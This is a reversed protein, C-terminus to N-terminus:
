SAYGGASGEDLPESRRPVSQSAGMPSAAGAGRPKRRVRHNEYDIRLVVGLAMCTVLMSSGGYSMLPLTLGKTPLLGMNVGLNIFVQLAIWSGIGWCAYANFMRGLGEAAVAVAFIRWILLAYLGMVLVSGVLGTEEALVAFLFDTHAEPLYFLKQVSEGLGVGFWEGRGIAILAQTLQFGSDFPDAWPDMFGMIRRLRYPEAIALASMAAACVSFLIGFQWLKVGGLFMMGLVTTLLVASASFDPQLLLLVSILLVLVMPKLFGSVHSRVVAGQRVLYGALYIVVFLKALEAVQINVVGLPIWRTGGNVSRGLGPILVVILMILTVLLLWPGSREIFRTQTRAVALMLLLGAGVYLSQRILYHFPSGYAQESISFSASGVLTLGLGLLSVLAALLPVDLPLRQELAHPPLPTSAISM